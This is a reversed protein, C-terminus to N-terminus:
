FSCRYRCYRWRKNIAFVIIREGKSRYSQLSCTYGEEVLSNSVPLKSNAEKGEPPMTEYLGIFRPKRAVVTKRPPLMPSLVRNLIPSKAPTSPAIPSRFTTQLDREAEIVTEDIARM